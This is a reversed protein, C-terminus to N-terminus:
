YVAKIFYTLLRSIGLMDVFFMSSNSFLQTVLIMLLQKVVNSNCYM